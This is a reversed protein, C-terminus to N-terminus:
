LVTGVVVMICISVRCTMEPAIELNGIHVEPSALFVLVVKVVKVASAAKEVFSPTIGWDM